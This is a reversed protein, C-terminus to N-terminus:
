QTIGGRRPYHDDTRQEPSFYVRVVPVQQRDVSTVTFRAHQVVTLDVLESIWFDDSM